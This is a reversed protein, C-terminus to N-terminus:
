ILQNHNIQSLESIIKRSDSNLKKVYVTNHNAEFKQVITDIANVASDDWLHAHNFDLEIVSHDVNFDIQNMMSDISVFFIQGEFYVHLTEDFTETTVNVNSIKTAFFLASFVVGVIVGIALNHTMLVIIVTLIMVFADTKPANKIYKFSHWDVTGISVMVMIGALIPMPIQVVLDGLVIIMFILVVGATLTSLRSTAGSKVNIVSQGIMACGGMGGFFGTIINAIGQGRSEKNKSSYTNTFEDVIKATLLSEVLGVIAMSVSFPLIVQLTELTYPVQPIIFHPLAQKITGLDGVTHVNAGTFMYLTTLLIIAILPAPIAKFFRPVIYVILLTIIVYIYTAISINFIHEIQSLFIMIGLANVFGIMVSQPIFKMLRGVKLIGLVLQILGMLITAAFLYEVGHEKVLPTVVLAVAGTAGSIMAPRGGVIATVTAIIFAAYLGIMPDVGAIISFAIAEPILALAVVIGALINKMPQNFWQVKWSDVM